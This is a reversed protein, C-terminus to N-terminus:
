KGNRQNKPKSSASFSSSRGAQGVGQETAGKMKTARGERGSPSQDVVYVALQLTERESQTAKISGPLAADEERMHARGYSKKSDRSQRPVGRGHTSMVTGRAPSGANSKSAPASDQSGRMRVALTQETGGSCSSAIVRPRGHAPSGATVTGALQSVDSAPHGRTLSTAM